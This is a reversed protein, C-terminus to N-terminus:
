NNINSDSLCYIKVVRYDEYWKSTSFDCPAVFQWHLGISCTCQGWVQVPADSQSIHQSYLCCDERSWVLLNDDVIAVLNLQNSEPQLNEKVNESLKKSLSHNRLINSNIASM